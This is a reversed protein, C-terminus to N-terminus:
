TGPYREVYACTYTRVYSSVQRGIAHVTGARHLIWSSCCNVVRSLGTSSELEPTIHRARGKKKVTARLLRFSRRVRTHTHIHTHWVSLVLTVFLKSLRDRVNKVNWNVRRYADCTDTPTRGFFKTLLSINRSSRRKKKEKEEEKFAFLIM